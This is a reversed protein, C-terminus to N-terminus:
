RATSAARSIPGSLGSAAPPTGTQSSRSACHLQRESTTMATSNTPIAAATVMGDTTRGITMAVTKAAVSSGPAPQSRRRPQFRVVAAAATVNPANRAAPAIRTRVMADITPGSWSITVVAAPPASSVSALRIPRALTTADTPDPKSWDTAPSITPSVPNTM